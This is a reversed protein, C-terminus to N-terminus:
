RVKKYIDLTKESFVRENRYAGDFMGIFSNETMIRCKYVDDPEKKNKGFDRFFCKFLM